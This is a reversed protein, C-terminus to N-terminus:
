KKGSVQELFEQTEELLGSGPNDKKYQELNEEYAKEESQLNRAKSLEEEYAEERSKLQNERQHNDLNYEEKVLKTDLGTAAYSPHPFLLVASLAIFTVTCAIAIAQRVTQTLTAFIRLM